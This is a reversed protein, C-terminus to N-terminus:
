DGLFFWSIGKFLDSFTVAVFVMGITVLVTATGVCTLLM